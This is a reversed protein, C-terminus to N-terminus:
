YRAGGDMVLKEFSMQGLQYPALPPDQSEAALAGFVHMSLSAAIGIIGHVGMIMM